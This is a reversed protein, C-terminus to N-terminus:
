AGNTLPVDADMADREANTVIAIAGRHFSVAHTRLTIQGFRIDFHKQLRSQVPMECGQGDPM